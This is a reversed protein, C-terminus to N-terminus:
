EQRPQNGSTYVVKGHATGPDCITRVNRLDNGVASIRGNQDGLLRFLAGATGKVVSGSLSLGVVKELVIASRASASITMDSNEIRADIVDSFHVAPRVDDQQTNLSVGQMRLGRVHRVYFGYSPLIGWMLAEPYQDALEEVDTSVDKDVGGTFRLRIDYLTVDEVDYGTIGTISCGTTKVNYATVHSLSIGRMSGVGPQPAGEWHKRGRNGLRIFIPVEPGDIVVNSISIGEMVGGDVVELSIGSIGWPRGAMKTVVSSPRVVMNSITINRFGGTSETGAKIANCHSSLICNSISINETIRESTSKLTIADDDTDGVCDSIVVNRCGDIDMMDNNLNIHNYVKIGRIIVDDCALYHQMWSASNRMTVDKVTVRNCEVFRIIYPRNKYRAPKEKTTVKFQAGQGDITGGGTISINSQGEAYFLSHKLFANNYSKLTPTREFYEALNPSGLITAGTQIHIEVNSRLEISGTLFTGRSFVVVGGLAGCKDVANQIAKTDLTVGDGKAGFERVDFMRSAADQSHAFSWMLCAAFVFMSSKKM